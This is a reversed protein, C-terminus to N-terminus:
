TATALSRSRQTNDTHGTDAVLQMTQTAAPPRRGYEKHRTFKLAKQCMPKVEWSLHPISNMTGHDPQMKFKAQNLINTNFHPIYTHLYTHICTYTHVPIYWLLISVLSTSLQNSSTSELIILCFSMPM